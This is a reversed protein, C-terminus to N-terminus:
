GTRDSGPVRAALVAAVATAVALALVGFGLLAQKAQVLDIGVPILVLNWVVTGTRARLPQRLLVFGLAGVCAALLIIVVSSAVARSPQADSGVQSLDFVAVGLM